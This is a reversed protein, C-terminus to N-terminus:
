ADIAKRVPSWPQSQMHIKIRPALEVADKTENGSEPANALGLSKRYKYM